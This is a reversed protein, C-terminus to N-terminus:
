NTDPAWDCEGEGQYHGQTALQARVWDLASDLPPAGALNYGREATFVELADLQELDETRVIGDGDRDAEVMWGTQRTIAGESDSPFANFWLHDGHFTVWMVDEGAEYFTRIQNLDRRIAGKDTRIEGLQKEVNAWRGWRCDEHSVEKYSVKLMNKDLCEM